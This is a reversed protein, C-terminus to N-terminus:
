LMLAMGLDIRSDSIVRATKGAHFDLQPCCVATATVTDPVIWGCCCGELGGGVGCCVAVGGALV